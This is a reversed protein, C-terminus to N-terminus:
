RHLGAVAPQKNSKNERNEGKPSPQRRDSLNLTQRFPRQQRCADSLPRDVASKQVKVKLRPSDGIYRRLSALVRDDAKKRGAYVQFDDAYRVFHHGRRHLQWDLDDVDLLYCRHCWEARRVEM